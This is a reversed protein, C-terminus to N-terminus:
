VQFEYNWQQMGNTAGSIRSSKEAVILGPHRLEMTRQMEYTAGRMTSSTEHTAVTLCSHRLEMMHQMQYNARRM